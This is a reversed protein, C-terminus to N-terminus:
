RAVSYKMYDLLLAGTTGGEREISVSLDTTVLDGASAESLNVVFSIEVEGVGRKVEVESANLQAASRAPYPDIEHRYPDEVYGWARISVDEPVDYELTLEVEVSQGSIRATYPSPTVELLKLSLNAYPLDEFDLLRPLFTTTLDNLLFVSNAYQRARRLTSSQSEDPDQSLRFYVTHADTHFFLHAIGDDFFHRTRYWRLTDEGMERPFSSHGLLRRGARRHRRQAELLDGFTICFGDLTNEGYSFTTIGETVGYTSQIFEIDPPQRDKQLALSDFTQPLDLTRSSSFAVTNEIPECGTLLPFLLLTVCMTITPWIPNSRTVARRDCKSITNM